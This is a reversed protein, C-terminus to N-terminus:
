APAETAKTASAELKTAVKEVKDLVDRLQEAQQRLRKPIYAMGLGEYGLELLSRVVDGAHNFRWDALKIGSKAEFEAVHGRLTELDRSARNGALELERAHRESLERHRDELMARVDKSSVLDDQLKRLL